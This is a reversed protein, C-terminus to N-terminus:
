RFSIDPMSSLPALAEVGVGLREVWVGFGM